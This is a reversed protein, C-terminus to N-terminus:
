GRLHVKNANTFVCRYEHVENKSSTHNFSWLITSKRWPLSLLVGRQVQGTCFTVNTEDLGKISMECGKRFIFENFIIKFHVCHLIQM